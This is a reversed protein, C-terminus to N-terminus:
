GILGFLNIIDQYTVGMKKALYVIVYVTALTVARKLIWAYWPDNDKTQHDQIISVLEAIPKSQLENAPIPKKKILPKIIDILTPVGHAIATLLGVIPKKTM